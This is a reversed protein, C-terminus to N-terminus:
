NTEFKILQSYKDQALMAYCTYPLLQKAAKLLVFSSSCPKIENRGYTDRRHRDGYRAFPDHFKRTVGPWNGSPNGLPRCVHAKSNGQRGNGNSRSVISTLKELVSRQEAELKEFRGAAWQRGAELQKDTEVETCVNLLREGSRIACQKWGGRYIENLKSRPFTRALILLM